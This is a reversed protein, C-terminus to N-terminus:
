LDRATCTRLRDPSPTPPAHRSLRAQGGPGGPVATVPLLFRLARSFLSSLPSSSAPGGSGPLLRSPPVATCHQHWTGAPLLPHFQFLDAAAGAEAARLPLVQVAAMPKGSFEVQSQAAGGSLGPSASSSCDSQGPWASSGVSSSLQVASGSTSYETTQVTDQVTRCLNEERAPRAPVPAGDPRAAPPGAGGSAGRVPLGDM